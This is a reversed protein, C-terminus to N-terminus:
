KSLKLEGGAKEVAKKATESAQEVEIALKKSLKGNGLLKVPKKTTQILGSDVLEKKSVKAGDKFTAELDSLNIVQATKKQAHPHTFGPLKPMKQVLPTQGGEFGPRRKGGSRANQGKTGRGATTGRGSGSGRGLRRSSKKKNPSLSNQQLM